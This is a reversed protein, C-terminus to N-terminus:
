IYQMCHIGHFEALKAQTKCMALWLLLGDEFLIANREETPWNLKWGLTVTYPVDWGDSTDWLGQYDLSEITYKGPQLESPPTKWDGVLAISEPTHLWFEKLVKKDWKKARKKRYAALTGISDNKTKTKAIEKSFCKDFAQWVQFADNLLIPYDVHPM